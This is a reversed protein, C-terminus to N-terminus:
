SLGLSKRLIGIVDGVSIKGNGNVDAAAVGEPSLQRLGVLSQLALTADRVNIAEDGNVDGLDYAPFVVFDSQSSVTMGGIRVTVTGTAAGQPVQVVIKNPAKSVVSAIVGNFMVVTPFAPDESSLNKGELVVEAGVMGESPTIANLVPVPLTPAPVGPAGISRSLTFFGTKSEGIKGAAGSLTAIGFQVFPEELGEFTADGLFDYRSGDQSRFASVRDGKRVLKM